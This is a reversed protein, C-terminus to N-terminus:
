PKIGSIAIGNAPHMDRYRIRIDTLGAADLDEQIMEATENAAKEERASLPQFVMVLRGGTSLLSALRIFELQPDNWTHIANCGYITHFYRSPYPLHTIPGTHLQILQQRIYEKNRRSAQQYMSPSPDIGALFGVKLKKAAAQLIRGQGYGVELIHQYTQINLQEVTWDSLLTSQRSPIWAALQGAINIPQRLAGSLLNATM